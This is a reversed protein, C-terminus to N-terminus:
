AKIPDDLSKALSSEWVVILNIVSQFVNEIMGWDVNVLEAGIATFKDLIGFVDDLSGTENNHL